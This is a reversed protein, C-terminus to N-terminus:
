GSGQARFGSGGGAQVVFGVGGGAHIRIRSDEVELGCHVKRGLGQVRSEFGVFLHELCVVHM